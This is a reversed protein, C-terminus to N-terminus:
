GAFGMARVGRRMLWFGALFSYDFSQQPKNQTTMRLSTDRPMKHAVCDFSGQIEGKCKRQSDEIGRILAIESLV